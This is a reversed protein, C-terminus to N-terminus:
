GRMLSGTALGPQIAGHSEPPEEMSSILDLVADYGHLVHLGDACSLSLTWGCADKACGRLFLAFSIHYCKTSPMLEVVNLQFPWLQSCCTAKIPWVGSM